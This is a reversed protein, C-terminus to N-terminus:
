VSLLDMLEARSFSKLVGPDDEEIVDAMLKKKNEIIASIKEELTGETVLKFVQVGRTQGIRHVRDTAQDEKAANWWRDYHIVVSGGTLDIGSGGAKLSGVFVRCDPDDNFRDIQEGRNRSQGTISAVGVGKEKMAQVIMEVMAAFQTFVVVKQDNELCTDLLQEFLQWKGSDAAGVSKLGADRSVSAPHNCIQKLLTLLAFIHIYPIDEDPSELTKLVNKGRSDVAERYLRVQAETLQCYRIDEIKEPLETLVAAKTRRMAFPRVLRRLEARRNKDGSEYRFSFADDDGMYGPLVLDMLAKLEGLRNEIPTGTVAVKMGAPLAKAAEYSKTAPNKISHAEDFAAMAFGFATLQEIDRWLVGYSTIVVRGPPGDADIARDTGHYVTPCLAPAHECIKRAWHSIVTTPCVVLFPKTTAQVQTLWVMLAMVQHTKGLGMDDCLLGGFRNEHLFVLWELGRKQYKRLRSSLGPLEEVPAPPTMEMLSRVVRTDSGDTEAIEVPQDFAAQLRMVDLRSFRLTEPSAALQGALDQGPQGTLGELVAARTDVWGDEVPLYRKGAAKAQYIDQLSVSANEGFGYHVSLYCWDRDIAEAALDIRQCQRHITLRGVSDDIINPPAFIDGLKDFVEPLRDQRIKKRYKAGFTEWYPDPKRWTALIKRDPIYVADKYWQKKLSKRPWAETSGDPLHLLLYLDLILNNQADVSVYVISELSEPWVSVGAGFEGDLTRVLHRVRERPVVIEFVPTLSDAYTCRVVFENMAEDIGSTISCSQEGTLQRFHYAMRYWFSEELAQRRNKVGKQGMVRETDTLTWRALLDLVAGRHFFDDEEQPALGTRQAFLSAEDIGSDADRRGGPYVNVMLRGDSRYVRCAAGMDSDAAASEFVLDSARVPDVKDLAAALRHWPGQRFGADFWSSPMTEIMPKVMGALAKKHPCNRKKKKNSAACDCTLAAIEKKDNLVMVAVGPDPDDAEPLLAAANRHYEIRPSIM